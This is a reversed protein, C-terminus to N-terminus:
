HTDAMPPLSSASWGGGLARILAVSASLRRNQLDVVTREAALLTTQATLVNLYSVIGSKYQNLTLELSRRALAVADTQVVSEQELIRLAALNDEVEQFATLVTQRYNGVTQDYLAVAQETRARRLGADFITQALASGLSWFRAPTTFLSSLVTSQFGGSASLTIAPYYAAQAVGIQANASQVRREAAAIDPRRELLASPVGVPVGPPTAPLAARELSFEAPPKGILVAIAHELQARQVGLDISQAETTRLQTQAQVVDARAAVGANYRNETLRLSEQFARQTDTFLQQQAELARLQFYNQALEAQLSLRVNEVDAASANASAASAEVARGVRGWLDPEWSADLGIDYVTVGGRNVTGSGARGVQSRTVSASGSLTPFYAARAQAVLARAQRFQAESQALTQNSVSVQSVLGSLLPDGYVLWWDGKLEADRPQAEKWGALEKYQTPVPAQPRFFDPGVTCGALVIVTFLLLAVNKSRSRRNMWETRGSRRSASDFSSRGASPVFPKVRAKVNAGYRRGGAAEIAPERGM